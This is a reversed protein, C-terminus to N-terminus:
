LILKVTVDPVIIAVVLLVITTFGLGLITIIGLLENTQEPDDATSVPLPAMEYVQNGPLEFPNENAIVGVALVTYM